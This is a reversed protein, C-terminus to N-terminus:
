QLFNLIESWKLKAFNMQMNIYMCCADPPTSYGAKRWEVRRCKIVLHVFILEKWDRTYQM